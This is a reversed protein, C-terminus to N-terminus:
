PAAFCAFGVQCNIVNNEFRKLSAVSNGDMVNRLSKYIPHAHSQFLQAHTSYHDSLSSAASM